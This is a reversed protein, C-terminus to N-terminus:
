GKHKKNSKESLIEDYADDIEKKKKKRIRNRESMSIKKAKKEIYDVELSVAIKKILYDVKTAEEHFGRKDLSDAMKILMEIM